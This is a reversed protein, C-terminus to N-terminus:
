QKTLSSTELTNPYGDVDLSAGAAVNGLTLTTETLYAVEKVTTTGSTAVFKEVVEGTALTKQGNISLTAVRAPIPMANIDLPRTGTGSCVLGSYQMSSSSYSLVNAATRTIVATRIFSFDAGTNSIECGSVWTGVYKASLDAVPASGSAPQKIYVYVTDLATPFGEADDPSSDTGIRLTNGSVLSISKATSASAAPTIITGVVKDVTDAGVTKTGVFNITGTETYTGANAVGSCTTNSFSEQIFTYSLTTTNAKVEINTEKISSAGSAVCAVWTGVYKDVVDATAAPSSSGGGGGCAVLTATAVTLFVVKSFKMNVKYFSYIGLNTNVRIIFTDFTLLLNSTLYCAQTKHNLDSFLGTHKLFVVCLGGKRIGL